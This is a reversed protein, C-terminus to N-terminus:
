IFVFMQTHIVDSLLCWGKLPRWLVILYREQVDAVMVEERAKDEVVVDTM